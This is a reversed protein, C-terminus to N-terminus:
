KGVVKDFIERKWYGSSAGVCFGILSAVGMQEM